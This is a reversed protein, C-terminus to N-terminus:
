LTFAEGLTVPGVIGDVKLGRAGQFAETALTTKAGFVGDVRGVANGYGLGYLMGQWLRVFAGTSGRRVLEWGVAVPVAVDMSTGSYTWHWPESAVDNVFGFTGANARLWPVVRPDTHRDIDIAKGREHNSTGPKAAGQPNSKSNYGGLRKYLQAQRANSRWASIVTLTIGDAAAARHMDNFRVAAVGFLREDPNGDLQRLASTDQKPGPKPFATM